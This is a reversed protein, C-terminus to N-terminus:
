NLRSDCYSFKGTRWWQDRGEAVLLGAEKIRAQSGLCALDGFALKM